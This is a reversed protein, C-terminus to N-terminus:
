KSFEEHWTELREKLPTGCRVCYNNISTNALKCRPCIVLGSSNNKEDLNVGSVRLIERVVEKGSIHSYVGPMNSTPKWGFFGKM